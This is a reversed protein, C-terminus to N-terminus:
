ACDADTERKNTFIMHTDICISIYFDKMRSAQLFHEPFVTTDQFPGGTSGACPRKLLWAFVDVYPDQHGLTYWDKVHASFTLCSYVQKSRGLERTRLRLVSPWCTRASAEFVNSTRTMCNKRICIYIYVLRYYRFWHLYTYVYICVQIHIYVYM